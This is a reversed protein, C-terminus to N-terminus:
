LKCVLSGLFRFRVFASVRGTAVKVRLTFAVCLKPNPAYLVLARQSPYM